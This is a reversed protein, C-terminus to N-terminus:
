HLLIITVDFNILYPSYNDISKEVIAKKIGLSLFFILSIYIVLGVSEFESSQYM